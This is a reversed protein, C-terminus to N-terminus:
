HHTAPDSKTDGLLDAYLSLLGQVEIDWNYRERVRQQGVRGMEQRLAPDELLRTIADAYADLDDPRVMIACKGDGVFPRSPPLDSLVVPMGLAMYEFLKTPINHQFKPLDPLPIIGIKAQRIRAAVQEHPIRHNEIVFLGTLGRRELEIHAWALEPCSGFLLWRASVNRARLQEAVSFAVELHYRPITGHYVLDFQEEVSKDIGSMVFLDARPFNHVVQVRKAKYRTRYIDAVGEDATVICDFMHGALWELVLTLSALMMRALRPLYYKQAVYSVNDEHSDYIVVAGFRLKLWLGLPILEVAHLHYLDAKLQRAIRESRWWRAVRRKPQIRLKPGSLEEISHLHVGEVIAKDEDLQALLHTDYGALALSRCARHFVRQDFPIHVSLHCVRALPSM